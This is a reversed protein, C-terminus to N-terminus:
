IYIAVMRVQLVQPVDSSVMGIFWEMTSCKMTEEWNDRYTPQGRDRIHNFNSSVTIGYHKSARTAVITPGTSLRSLVAGM